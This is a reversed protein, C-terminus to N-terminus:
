FLDHEFLSRPANGAASRKGVPILGPCAKAPFVVLSCASQHFETDLEEGGDTGVLLAGIMVPTLRELERL